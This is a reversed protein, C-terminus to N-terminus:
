HLIIIAYEGFFKFIAAMFTLKKKKKKRMFILYTRLDQTASVYIHPDTTPLQALMPMPSM